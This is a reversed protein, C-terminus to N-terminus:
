SNARLFELFLFRDAGRSADLFHVCSSLAAQDHKQHVPWLHLGVGLALAEWPGDPMESM